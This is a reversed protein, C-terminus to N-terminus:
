ALEGLTSGGGVDFKYDLQTSALNSLYKSTYIRGDENSGIVDSFFVEISCCVIINGDSLYGVAGM